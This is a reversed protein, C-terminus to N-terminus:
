KRHPESKLSAAYRARMNLDHRRYSETLLVNFIELLYFFFFVDGFVPVLRQRNNNGFTYVFSRRKYASGVCVCVSM